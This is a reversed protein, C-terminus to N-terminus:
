DVALVYELYKYSNIKAHTRSYTDRDDNRYFRNHLHQFLYYLAVFGEFAPVITYSLVLVDTINYYLHQSPNSPRLVM